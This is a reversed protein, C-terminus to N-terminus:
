FHQWLRILNIFLQLLQLHLNLKIENVFLNIQLKYRADVAVFLKSVSKPGQFIVVGKGCFPLLLVIYAKYLRVTVHASSSPQYGFIISPAIRLSLRIFYVLFVGLLKIKALRRETFVFALLLRKFPLYDLKAYYYRQVQREGKGKRGERSTRRRGTGCCGRRSTLVDISRRFTSNPSCWWVM